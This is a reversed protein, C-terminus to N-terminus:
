AELVFWFCGYKWNRLRFWAITWQCDRVWGTRKLPQSEHALTQIRHSDYLGQCRKRIVPTCVPNLSLSANLLPVRCKVPRRGVAVVSSHASSLLLCPFSHFYFSPVPFVCNKRWANNTLESIMRCELVHYWWQVHGYFCPTVMVCTQFFFM